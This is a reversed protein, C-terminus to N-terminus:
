KVMLKEVPEKQGPKTINVVKRIVSEGGTGFDRYITLYVKSRMGARNQNTNFYKVQIDYDGRPAKRITYMEPGFGDTIDRTIRGGARTRPHSYFCEEGSPEIVHLDVDSQDTNWMMTVLLDASKEIKLTEELSELRAEAYARINSPKRESTIERLLYAYETGAIKRFDQQRNQFKSGLAIEYFVVAMDAKNMQTLCQGLATYISPDYPRAKAIQRLLHYAHAPCSMEMASFAVDRALVLDGTNQEVLSSLVKVGDDVSEEARRNAEKIVADYDLRDSSLMELYAKTLGDTGTSECNLSDSIADFEIDDIALNLATPISFEMGPMNELRSLWAMMQAKPDGLEDAKSELVKAVLESSNKSKVVFLDEQPVINFRKYDAESELMLLSCTQGTIRFHRAYAAAVDFVSQGLSELQGVAVQGYLRSALESEVLSDAQVSVIKEEDGRELVFKLDAPDSGKNLRGVVTVPQGPYVWQVRGATLLDTAGDFRISKLKWPRARHATSAKAVEDENAISFVAGGTEGALFRLSSVATGTLGTQYAFLSGLKAEDVVGHILRLNTEGWNAAGDSLLFLDPSSESGVWESEALTNVASYLDTAGELVLQQCDNVLQRVNEPTNSVYEEKWFHNEVNFFLVAFEDLSDRNNDLTARLMDLWVNFKDPRSSLSTDVMFVARASDAAVDRPLDLNVRTAFFDGAKPDRSRLLFNTDGAITLRISEGQEPKNIRFRQGNKTQKEKVKSTASCKITTGPLDSVNLEIKCKGTQEPLDLNYVLGETTPTLNVDYGIVIRHLKKPMLPFVNANFVGAGSWEVLAPDVRRRVTQGYAFAAKEKPVMRAEKVNQWVNQRTRRVDEARLSVFRTEDGTELFDRNPLEGNSTLDFASQGFAFYYLSADDPLRIKFKGELQRNRDNYYFYDVLVRARFGDVQVHVDMGNMDLEERDGIMLRSTNPVAKVRRWTRPAPKKNAAVEKGAAAKADSDPAFPKSLRSLRDVARAEVSRRKQRQVQALSSELQDASMQRGGRRGSAPVLSLTADPASEPLNAQTILPRAAGAVVTADVAEFGDDTPSVSYRVARRTEDLERGELQFDSLASPSPGASAGAQQLDGLERLEALRYEAEFESQEVARLRVVDLEDDGDGFGSPTEGDSPIGYDSETQEEDYVHMTTPPRQREGGSVDWRRWREQHFGYTTGRSSEEETLVQGLGRAGSSLSEAEIYDVTVGADAAGDEAWNDSVGDTWAADRSKQEGRENEFRLQVRSDAAFSRVVGKGGVEEVYETEWGFGDQKQVALRPLVDEGFDDPHEEVSPMSKFETDLKATSFVTDGFQGLRGQLLPVALVAVCAATALWAWNRLVFGKMGPSPRKVVAQGVEAVAQGSDGSQLDGSQLDGKKLDGPLPTAVAAVLEDKQKSQLGIPEENCFEDSLWSTTQEIEDLMRALEPSQAIAQEVIAREKDDLEGLVYATLRPDNKDMMFVM